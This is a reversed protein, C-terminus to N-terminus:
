FHPSLLRAAFGPVEFAMVVMAVLLAFFCAAVLCSGLPGYAEFSLRGMTIRFPMMATTPKPSTQSKSPQRKM